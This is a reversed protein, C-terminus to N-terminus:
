RAWFAGAEAGEAAGGGQGVVDDPDQVGAEGRELGVRWFARGM